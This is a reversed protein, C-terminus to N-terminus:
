SECASVELDLGVKEVRVAESVRAQEQMERREVGAFRTEDRVAAAQERYRAEDEPSRGAPMERVQTEM